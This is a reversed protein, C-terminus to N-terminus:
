ASKTIKQLKNERLKDAYVKVAQYDEDHVWFERRRFGLGSMKRIYRAKRQAITPDAKSM